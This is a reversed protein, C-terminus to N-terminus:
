LKIRYFREPKLSDSPPEQLPQEIAPPPAPVSDVAAPLALPLSPKPKKETTFNLFYYSLRFRISQNAYRFYHNYTRSAGGAYQYSYIWDIRPMSLFDVQYSVSFELSGAKKMKRVLGVGAIFSGSFGGMNKATFSSTGGLYNVSTDESSAEQKM